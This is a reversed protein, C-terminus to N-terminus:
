LLAAILLCMDDQMASYIVMYTKPSSANSHVTAFLGAAHFGGLKQVFLMYELLVIETPQGQMDM